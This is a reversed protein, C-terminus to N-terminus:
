ACSSLFRYAGVSCAFLFRQAPMLSVVQRKERFSATTAHWQPFKTLKKYCAREIKRLQVTTRQVRRDRDINIDGM